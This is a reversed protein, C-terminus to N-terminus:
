YGRFYEAPDPSLGTPVMKPAFYTAPDPAFPPRQANAAIDPATEREIRAALDALAVGYLCAAVKEGYRDAVAKRLKEAEAKQAPTQQAEFVKRAIDKAINQIDGESLREGEQKSTNALPRAHLTQRKRTPVTNIILQNM